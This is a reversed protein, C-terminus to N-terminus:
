YHAVDLWNRGCREGYQPSSLLRNVLKEYANPDADAEFAQVDDFPPPLGILDFYLRRILTRRDAAPSPTLNQEHLKTLIFADIPMRIWDSQIAPVTPRVLPRLSWWDLDYQWK